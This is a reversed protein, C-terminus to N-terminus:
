VMAEPRLFLLITKAKLLLSVLPELFVHQNILPQAAGAVKSDVLQRRTFKM